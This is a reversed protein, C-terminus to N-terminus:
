EGNMFFASLHLSVMFCYHATVFCFEDYFLDSCAFVVNVHWLLQWIHKTLVSLPKPVFPEVSFLKRAAKELLVIVGSFSYLCVHSWMVASGKRNQM